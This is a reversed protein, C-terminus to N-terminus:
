FEFSDLAAEWKNSRHNLSAEALILVTFLMEAHSGSFYNGSENEILGVVLRDGRNELAVGAGRGM